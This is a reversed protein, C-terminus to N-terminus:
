EPLVGLVPTFRGCDRSRPDGAGELFAVDSSGGLDLIRAIEFPM